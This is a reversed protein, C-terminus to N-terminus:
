YEFWYLIRPPGPPMPTPLPVPAPAPAPSGPAPLPPPNETKVFDAVRSAVKDIDSVVAEIQTRVNSYVGTSKIRFSVLADTVIPIDKPNGTLRAGFQNVAAWFDDASKFLGGEQENSRRAILKDAIDPTIGQDLSILVEKTAVNPNIGKLGFVTIRKELFNFIDDEMMPIVRLESITRFSRNPPYGQYEDKYIGRKDGGNLSSRSESMFDTIQNLLEEFRFNRYKAEFARNSEVQQLFANTLLKRTTERLVKSPSVLDNLDIKSGEDQIQTDINADFFSKENAEKFTNKSMLGMEEAIPLPIQLPFQWIMNIMPYNAANKGLKQAVQQYAKIRLLSIEIGSRAAYYAKLRKLEQSNVLYEVTADYTVETALYTMFALALIATIIAIGTQNKIIKIAKKFALEVVAQQIM